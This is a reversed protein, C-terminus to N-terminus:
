GALYRRHYRGGLSTLVEYGITGAMAAVADAPQDPGILDVLSGPRIRDPAIATVDM